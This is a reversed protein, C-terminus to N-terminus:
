AADKKAKGAHEKVSVTTKVEVGGEERVADLVKRMVGAIPMGWAEALPKVARQIAAKSSELECAADAIDPTALKRLVQRVVAGDLYERRTETPGLIAGNPLEVPQKEAYAYIAKRVRDIALEAVKLREWALAATQPTLAARIDEDLADPTTAMARILATQSPCDRYAPCHRCHSGAVTTATKDTKYQRQAVGVRQLIQLLEVAFDELDFATFEARDRWPTGNARLHLLEVIATDRGYARCAALALFKLQKNFRAAPVYGEYGTKFDGVYVTDASLGIVDATGPLESPMLGTYDRGLGRGLERGRDNWPDYALAVEAAYAKPDVPLRALDIQACLERYEEPVLELAADRGERAADELFHHIVTGRTAHESQEPTQPLAASAPCISIRHLQSASIM